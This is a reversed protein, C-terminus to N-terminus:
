AVESLFYESVRKGSAVEITRSQINFGRRRLDYIRAGLRMCGFHNLAELPTITNGKQLHKLIKSAQSQSESENLNINRM